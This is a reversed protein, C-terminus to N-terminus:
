AEVAKSVGEQYQRYTVSARDLAKARVPMEHTMWDQTEGEMGFLSGPSLPIVIRPRTKDLQRTGEILWKM